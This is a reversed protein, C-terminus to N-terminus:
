VWRKLRFVTYLVVAAVVQSRGPHLAARGIRRWVGDRRAAVPGAQTEAEQERDADEETLRARSRALAALRRSTVRREPM